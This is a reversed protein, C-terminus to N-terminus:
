FGVMDLVAGGGIVAIYSHRDIGYVHTAEVISQYLKQDNKCAEGGAVINPEAALIYDKQYTDSYTKIQSILHPHAESVGSDIVFLVKPIREGRLVDVLITNSPDFLGETFCVPYRFPVSFSQELITNM